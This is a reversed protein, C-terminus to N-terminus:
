PSLGGGAVVPSAQGLVLPSEIFSRNPQVSESPSPYESGPCNTSPRWRRRRRQRRIRGLPRVGVAVAVAVISRAVTGVCAGRLKTRGSFHTSQATRVGVAVAVGVNVIRKGTFGGLPVVGVAVAVAVFGGSEFCIRARGGASGRHSVPEPAGVRVVVAGGVPVGVPRRGVPGVNRGVVARLPRVAVPVAVAVVRGAGVPVGTRRYDPVEVASRRPQGSM